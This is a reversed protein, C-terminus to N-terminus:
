NESYFLQYSINNQSWKNFVFYNIIVIVLVVILLNVSLVFSVKTLKNLTKLTKEASMQM